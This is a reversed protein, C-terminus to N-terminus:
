SQNLRETLTLTLSRCATHNVAELKEQTYIRVNYFTGGATTVTDITALDGLSNTATKM